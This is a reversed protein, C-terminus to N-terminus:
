DHRLIPSIYDYIRIREMALESSLRELIAVLDYGHDHVDCSLARSLHM